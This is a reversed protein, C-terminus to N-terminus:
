WYNHANRFAVANAVSGYRSIAYQRAVREQNAPSYDGNLYSSSLQYKGIYQGNRATYSGGSEVAAISDLSGDSEAGTNSSAQTAAPAQTQAPQAAVAPKAAPQQQTAPQAPTQAQAQVPQAAPAETKAPAQAQAQAQVPQAAPQSAEAPQAAPTETQAAPQATAQKVEYHPQAAPAQPAAVQVNGNDGIVFTEGVYIRNIDQIKNAEKLSQVTVNYDQAIQSLTDGSKVTVNTSADANNAGAFLVGASVATIAAATKLGKFKM